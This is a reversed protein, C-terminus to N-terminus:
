LEEGRAPSAPHPTCTAGRPLMRRRVRRARAPDGGGDDARGLKDLLVAHNGAVTAIHPHNAPLTKHFIALARRYLPEAEPYRGTDRYLNALNNLRIAVTPHEPGLVKEGLSLAELYLKEAEEHRAEAGLQFALNGINRTSSEAEARRQDVDPKSEEKQPIM